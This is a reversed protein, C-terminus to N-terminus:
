HLLTVFIRGGGQRPEFYPVAGMPGKRSVVTHAYKQQPYIVITCCLPVLVVHVLHQSYLKCSFPLLSAYQGAQVVEQPARQPEGPGTPTQKKNKMKWAHYVRLRRHFEDRCAELLDIDSLSIRM